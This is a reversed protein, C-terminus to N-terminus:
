IEVTRGECTVYECERWIITQIAILLLLIHTLQQEDKEKAIINVKSVLFCDVQEGACAERLFLNYSLKDYMHIYLCTQRMHVHVHVHIYYVM